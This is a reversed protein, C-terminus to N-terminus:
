KNSAIPYVMDMRYGSIFKKCNKAKCLCNFNWSSPWSFRPIFADYSTTLEDDKQIFRNTTILWGPKVDCNPDCSHNCFAWKGKIRGWIAVGDPTVDILAVYKHEPDPHNAIYPNVSEEFSATAIITGAELDQSARLCLGYHNSDVYSPYHPERTNYYSILDNCQAKIFLLVYTFYFFNKKM